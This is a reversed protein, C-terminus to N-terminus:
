FHSTPINLSMFTVFVFGFFMSFIESYSLSFEHIPTFRPLQELDVHDHSVPPHLVAWMWVKMSYQVYKELPWTTCKFKFATCASYYAIEHVASTHTHTHAVSQAHAEIHVGVRSQRQNAFSLCTSPWHRPWDDREWNCWM